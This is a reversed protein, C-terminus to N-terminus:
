VLKGNHKKIAEFTEDSIHHEVKCADTAAVYPDVGLRVFYETLVKHREYTREAVELGEETLRLFGNADTELYGGEKLLSCLRKILRAPEPFHPFANYVVIM